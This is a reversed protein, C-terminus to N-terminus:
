FKTYKHRDKVPEYKPVTQNKTYYPKVCCYCILLTIDLFSFGALVLFVFGDMLSFTVAYVGYGLFSSIMSSLVDIVALSAFMAGQKDKATMSSMLGRIMPIMLFSFLGVIPVAYIMYDSTAYAEVIYSAMNSMASVIAIAQGSMVKQCLKVSGLGLIGQAAHRTMSFLGIKRPGWCFPQGLFYLTEMLLRNMGSLEAFAFSLLLIVYCLRMGKFTQSYYFDLSRALTDILPRRKQRHQDQLSEPLTFSILFFGIFAIFAAIIATYLFGVKWTEILYGSFLSSIVNTIVWVAEMTVMGVVRSNSDTTIDAVYAFMSSNIAFTSGLLGDFFYIALVYIFSLDFYIIVPMICYRTWMGFSALVFLFRRGYTDTYSPLIMNSVLMPIHQATVCLALWVASQQQVMKYHKYNDDSHNKDNCASFNGVDSMNEYQQTRITYQTWENVVYVHIQGGLILFVVAPIVAVYKLAVSNEKKKSVDITQILSEHEASM